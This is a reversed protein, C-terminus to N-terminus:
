QVVTGKWVIPMTDLRPDDFGEGIFRGTALLVRPADPTLDGLQALAERRRRPTVDGHLTVLTPAPPRLRDALRELHERRETLVLPVRGEDLLRRVDRVILEIREADAALASYIEQIARESPLMKPDFATDRRIVRLALETDANADITYRVPGCQM